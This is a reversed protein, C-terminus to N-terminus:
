DEDDDGFSLELMDDSPLNVVLGDGEMGEVPPVEPELKAQEATEEEKDGDVVNAKKRKRTSGGDEAGKKKKPM